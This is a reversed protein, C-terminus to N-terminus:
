RLHVLLPARGILIWIGAADAVFVVGHKYGFSISIISNYAFPCQLQVALWGYVEFSRGGEIGDIVVGSLVRVAFYSGSIVVM